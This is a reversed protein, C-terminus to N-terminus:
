THIGTSFYKALADFEGQTEIDVLKSNMQGTCYSNADVWSVKSVVKTSFHYCGASPVAYFGARCPDTSHIILFDAAAAAVVVVVVVVIVPVVVSDAHPAPGAAARLFSGTM